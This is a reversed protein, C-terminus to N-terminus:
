LQYLRHSQKGRLHPATLGSIGASQQNLQVSHLIADGSKEFFGAVRDTQDAAAEEVSM